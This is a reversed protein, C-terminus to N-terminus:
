EVQEVVVGGQGRGTWPLDQERVFVAEAALELGADGVTTDLQQATSALAFAFSGTAPEEFRQALCELRDEVRGLSLEIQFLM